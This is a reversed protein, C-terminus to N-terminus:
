DNSQQQLKVMHEYKEMAKIQLKSIQIVERQLKMMETEPEIPEPRKYDCADALFWIGAHCGIKRAESFLLILQEPKFDHRNNRNLCDKVWSEAYGPKSKLEPKLMLGVTIKGGLAMVITQLAGYIDDHFLSDQNMFVVRHASTLLKRVHACM